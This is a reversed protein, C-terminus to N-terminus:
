DFVLSITKNTKPISILAYSFGNLPMRTCAGGAANPKHAIRSAHVTVTAKTENVSNIKLGDTGCGVNSGLFVGILEDKSFDVNPKSGSLKAVSVLSEFQKETTIVWLQQGQIGRQLGSSVVKFEISKAATASASDTSGPGAPSNASSLGCGAFFVTIAAFLIVYRKVM